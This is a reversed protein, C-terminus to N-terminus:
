HIVVNKKNTQKPVVVILIISCLSMLCETLDKRSLKVSIDGSVLTVLPLKEDLLKVKTEAQSM